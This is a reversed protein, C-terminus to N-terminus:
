ILSLQAIRRMGVRRQRVSPDDEEMSKPYKREAKVPLYNAMYPKLVSGDMKLKDAPRDLISIGGERRLIEQIHSSVDALTGGVLNRSPEQLVVNRYDEMVPLAAELFAIINQATKEATQTAEQSRALHSRTDYALSAAWVALDAVPHEKTDHGDRCVSVGAFVVGNLAAYIESLGAKM